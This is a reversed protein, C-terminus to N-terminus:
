VYVDEMPIAEYRLVDREDDWFARTLVNAAMQEKTMMISKALEEAMKRGIEEPTLLTNELKMPTIMFSKGYTKIEPTTYSSTGPVLAATAVAFAGKIFSRRKM